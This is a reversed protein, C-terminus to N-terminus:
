RGPEGWPQTFWRTKATSSYGPGAPQHSTSIFGFPRPYQVVFTRVPTRLFRRSAAKGAESLSSALGSQRPRTKTKDKDGDDSNLRNWVEDVNIEIGPVGKIEWKQPTVTIDYKFTKGRLHEHSTSAFECSETYNEGDLAWTGGSIALIQRSDRNFTVWVYRGPVVFKQHRRAAPRDPPTACDWSGLLDHKLKDHAIDNLQSGGTTSAVGLVATLFLLRQM